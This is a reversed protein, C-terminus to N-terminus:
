IIILSIPFVQSTLQSVWKYDNSYNVFPTANNNWSPSISVYLCTANHGIFHVIVMCLMIPIGFFDRMYLRFINSRMKKGLFTPLLFYCFLPPTAFVSLTFCSLSTLVICTSDHFQYQGQSHNTLPTHLFLYAHMSPITRWYDKRTWANMPFLPHFIWICTKL